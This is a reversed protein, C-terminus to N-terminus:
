QSKTDILINSPKIDRHVIKKLKLYNLARLLQYSYLQVLTHPLGTAKQVQNGKRALKRYFDMIAYLSQNYFPTVLNLFKIIPEEQHDKKEPKMPSNDEDSKTPVKPGASMPEDTFYYSLLKLCNPHDIELLIEFERNTNRPDQATKKIAVTSNLHTNKAKFVIGFTGQGIEKSKRYKLPDYKEEKPYTKLKKESPQNQPSLNEPDRKGIM